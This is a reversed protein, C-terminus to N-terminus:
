TVTADAALPLSRLRRGTADFVANAIAPAVAIMPTEGAGASPLDQRDLLVVDISPVDAIRPVRYASFAGNTIVGDTFHVAEYLAGGLAMVTAGEIQNIVTDPNVVAGCEYASVLYAVRVTGDPEVSVEAATAVRADKELGCAIGRGSGPRRGAWGFREAVARLVAALREDTLNRLRFDVPDQGLRHAMVDIHSERAFNNATAALARYSGQSLPSSAPQYRVRQNPARYPTAIASPGSNVNTFTWATLDGTSTAGAAVDIVAAPRLTGSTFEEHRSWAVRVPRGIERAMVAAETAVAGAHKGGFGGGTPPVVIRVRDEDMGLAAAVQARVPFPTQTGTWVTLRGDEDWIALAARVELPAAAIYATTYTAEERVTASELAGDPDGEERDASWLWSESEAAPHSRLFDLLDSESPAPPVDWEARLAALASRATMLDAAAVGVLTENRILIVGERGDVAGSDLHRLTAGPVPPRLVAGHWLGPVTLDSVYSRRGTVADLNGAPHCPRGATRWEAPPTVPVDGAVIEVRRSGARVPLLARAAAAVQRLANGADPMSRSGFTGRDYPCTDTDGMALRVDGVPIRLEEAVL